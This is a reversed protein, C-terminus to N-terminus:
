NVAVVALSRRAFHAPRGPRVELRWGGAELRIKRVGRPADQVRFPRPPLILVDKGMMIRDGPFRPAPRFGAM